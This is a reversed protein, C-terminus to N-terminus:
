VLGIAAVYGLFVPASYFLSDTRDLLGGHGPLLASSDKVGSDRKFQSEVLDGLPAAVALITALGVVHIPALGLDLINATLAAAAYTTVVGGALGELTKNPSIRPSM